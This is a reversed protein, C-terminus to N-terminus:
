IQNASRIGGDSCGICCDIRHCLHVELSSAIIVARILCKPKTRDTVDHSYAIESVLSLAIGARLVASVPSRGDWLAPRGDLLNGSAKEEVM